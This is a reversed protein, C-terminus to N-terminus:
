GKIKSWEKYKIGARTKRVVRQMKKWEKCKIEGKGNWMKGTMDKPM